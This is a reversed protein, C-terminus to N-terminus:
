GKVGLERTAVEVLNKADDSGWHAIGALVGRVCGTSDLIMTTPLGFALGKSRLDQFSKNSPDLYLDLANANISELFRKPKDGGNRDVNLAVVQFNDSGHTEQMKALDPMEERCPGCWTAWLNLLVVKDKWDAFSMTDGTPTEFSIHSLPIPKKAIRMAAVDGTAAAELAATSASSAYCSEASDAVKTAANNQGGNGSLGGTGYVTLVGAFLGLVIAIGIFFFGRKKPAEAM